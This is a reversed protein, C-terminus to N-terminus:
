RLGFFVGIIIRFIFYCHLYEPGPHVRHVIYLAALPHLIHLADNFLSAHRECVRVSVAVCARECVCAANSLLAGGPRPPPSSPLSRIHLPLFYNGLPSGELLAKCGPM